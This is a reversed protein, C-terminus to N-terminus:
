LDRGDVSGDPGTDLRGVALGVRLAFADRANVPSLGCVDTIRRLRYRVTNPHVFLARATGELTGGCDLYATLTALLSSGADRLTDYVDRALLRRAEDDGALAREPLLDSALVPRPAGPWAAVARAGALAARASGGATALGTALGGVVVPGPGFEALLPKTAVLADQIGGLVVVMQEGQVGVLVDTGAYKATLQVADMVTEADGPPPAGVIVAVPAIDAWGLAAARSALIDDSDGRLLADVLLAQLRADWAGRVEAASAYVQAAAFAVERSYRLVAERLAAEEGPAALHEVQSEVVGITVRVLAVARQLTVSRALERPASGFVGYTIEPAREPQRLWEVFAAIGAQAVLMVWSRQDPPMSRFWPLVDDM